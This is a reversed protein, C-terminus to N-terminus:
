LNPCFDKFYNQQQKPFKLVGCSEESIIQGKDVRGPNLFKVFARDLIFLSRSSYVFLYDIYKYM